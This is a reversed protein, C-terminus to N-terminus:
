QDGQYEVISQLLASRIKYLKNAIIESSRTFMQPSETCYGRLKLPDDAHM